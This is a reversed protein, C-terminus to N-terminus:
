AKRRVRKVPKVQKVKIGKAKAQRVCDATGAGGPFAICHTAEAVMEANRKPGASKGHKQWDAHFTRVTYWRSLAWERAFTDAGPAGGNLVETDSPDWHLFLEDLTDYLFQKDAFDRGGCVIVSRTPRKM